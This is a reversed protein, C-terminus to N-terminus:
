AVGRWSWLGIKALTRGALALGKRRRYGLISPGFVPRKPHEQRRGRKDRFIAGYELIRAYMAIPKPDGYIKTQGLWPRYYWSKGGKDMVDSPVGVMYSRGKPGGLYAGSRTASMPTGRGITQPSTQSVFLTALPWVKISKLLDGKLIWFGINGRLMHWKWDQYFANYRAGRDGWGAVYTQRVMNDIMFMKYDQAMARPLEGYAQRDLNDELKRLASILRRGSRPEIYVRFRM